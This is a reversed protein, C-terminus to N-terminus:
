AVASQHQRNRLPPGLMLVHGNSVVRTKDLVSIDGDDQEKAESDVKTAFVSEVRIPVLPIDRPVISVNDNRSHWIQVVCPLLCLTIIRMNGPQKEGGMTTEWRAHHMLEWRAYHM